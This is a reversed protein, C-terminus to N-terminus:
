IITLGSQLIPLVQVNAVQPSLRWASAFSAFDGPLRLWVSGYDMIRQQPQSKDISVLSFLIQAKFFSVCQM